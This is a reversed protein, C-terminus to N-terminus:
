FDKGYQILLRLAWIFPRKLIMSLLGKSDGPLKWPKNGFTPLFVPFLPGTLVVLSSVLLPVVTVFPFGLPSFWTIPFMSRFTTPPGFGVDACVAFWDIERDSDWRTGQNIGKVSAGHFHFVSALVSDHPLENADGCVVWRCTTTFGAELVCSQFLEAAEVQPDVENHADGPPAYFTSIFWDEISLGILQSHTGLYSFLPGTQLRHDVLIVVGGMALAHAGGSPQSRGALHYCKFGCAHARRQFSGFDNSSFRTEQMCLVMFDKNNSAACHNLLSWAGTSSRVNCCLLQFRPSCSVRGPNPEVDGHSTLDPKWSSSRPTPKSTRAFYKDAEKRNLNWVKLLQKDIQSGKLKNWTAITGAHPIGDIGSCPKLIGVARRIIRCNVCTLIPGRASKGPQPWKNWDIVITRLDHGNNDAAKKWKAIGSKMWEDAEQLTSNWAACLATQFEPVQSLREWLAAQAPTAKGLQQKCEYFQRAAKSVMRCVRCTLLTDGKRKSKLAELM